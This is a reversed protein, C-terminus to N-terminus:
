KAHSVGGPSGEELLREKGAASLKKLQYERKAAASRCSFKETYVLSVPRRSRTYKAGTKSSNHAKTRKEPDKAIGSYLTGDSCRVIYTYWRERVKNM